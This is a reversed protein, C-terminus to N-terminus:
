GRTSSSSSGWGYIPSDNREGRRGEGGGSKEDGLGPGSHAIQQQQGAVRVSLRRPSFGWAAATAAEAKPRIAEAEAGEVRVPVMAGENATM